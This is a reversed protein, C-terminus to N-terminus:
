LVHLVDMFVVFGTVKSDSLCFVVLDSNQMVSITVNALEAKVNGNHTM